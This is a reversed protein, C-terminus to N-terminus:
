IIRSFNFQEALYLEADQDDHSTKQERSDSTEDPETGGLRGSSKGYWCSCRNCAIVIACVTRLNVKRRGLMEHIVGIAHEAISITKPMQVILIIGSIYDRTVLMPAM